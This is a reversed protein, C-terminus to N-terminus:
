AQGQVIGSPYFQRYRGYADRVRVLYAATEGYTINSSIDGGASQWGTVSGPGANYAAIVEDTTSLNRQLYSLYATGYVINVEPDTLDQYDYRSVDVLGQRAMEQATSPMLQMLGQAGAASSADAQWNSECKIVACVLYPDVGYQDAVSQIFAPRDVPYFTARVLPAPAVVIFIDLAFTALCALAMGLIPLTRFWRFFRADRTERTERTERADRADRADRTECADRGAQAAQHRDGRV